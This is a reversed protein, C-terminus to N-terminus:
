NKIIRLEVRRNLRHGEPTNDRSLPSTGGFAKTKIRSKGIGQSAIYDKVADVRQESLKMNQKADGLYDTHGELQIVMNKEDNMMKVVLDLESYSEQAIRSRGQEFILNSLRMVHGVEHVKPADAVPLSLEIDKVLVGDETAEAPDLLFKAQAFGPADVTISFHVNDYMPFSYSSNNIVGVYNGYPQSEYFIKASVLEKTQANIINGKATVLSDVALQAIAFQLSFMFMFFIAAKKM